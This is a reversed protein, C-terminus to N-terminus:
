ELKEKNRKIYFIEISYLVISSLFSYFNLTEFIKDMKLAVGLLTLFPMISLTSVTLNVWVSGIVRNINSYNSM